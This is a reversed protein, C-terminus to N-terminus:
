GVFCLQQRVLRSVQVGGAWCGEVAKKERVTEGARGTVRDAEMGDGSGLPPRSRPATPDDAGWM